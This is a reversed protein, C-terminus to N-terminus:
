QREAEDAALILAAALKRAQDSSYRMIAQSDGNDDPDFDLYVFTGQAGSGISVEAQDFCQDEVRVAEMNMEEKNEIPYDYSVVRDM